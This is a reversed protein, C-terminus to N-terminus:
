LLKPHAQGAAGPPQGDPLGEHGHGDRHLGGAHSTPDRRVNNQIILWLLLEMM